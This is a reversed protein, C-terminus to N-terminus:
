TLRDYNERDIGKFILWFAIILEFFLTPLNLLVTIQNFNGAYYGFILLIADVLGFTVAILGLASIWRPILKSRFFIYCYFFAGLNFFIVVCDQLHFLNTNLIKYYLDSPQGAASYEKSLSLMGFILILTIITMVSEIIRSVVAALALGENYKKLIPFLPVAIMATSFAMVMILLVVIITKTENNALAALDNEAEFIPAWNIAAIIGSVIALLFFIASLKAHNQISTFKEM